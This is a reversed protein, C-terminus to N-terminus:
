ASAYYMGTLVPPACTVSCQRSLAGEGDLGTSVPALRDSDRAECHHIRTEGSLRM